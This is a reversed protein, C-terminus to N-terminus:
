VGDGIQRDAQGSAHERNTMQLMPQGELGQVEILDYDPLDNAALIGKRLTRCFEKFNGTSNSREYITKFNWTATTRGASLRALRYVFRGIGDKIRFYDEHMTLVSATGLAVEEYIWDAIEMEVTAVRGTRADAVTRYRTIFAEANGVRKDKGGRGKITRVVKVTTTNLRDLVSEIEEYQRGGDSRRCFKLIEAVSPRFVRGPMEGKGARHLNVAKMLHSIAMLIVDYDWVSAMGAAGSQIEVYGNTIECRVTANPRKDKKSLRFVAVDMTSRTDKTALDYLAPVFFDLQADGAPAKRLASASKAAASLAEPIVEPLVLQGDDDGEEARRAAVKEKIKALNSEYKAESFKSTSM